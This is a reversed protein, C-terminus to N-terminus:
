KKLTNVKYIQHVRQRTIGLLRGIEEFTYGEKRLKVIKTLREKSMCKVYWM